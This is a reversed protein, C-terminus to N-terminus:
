TTEELGLAARLEAADHHDTAHRDIARRAAAALRPDIPAHSGATDSDDVAILHSM